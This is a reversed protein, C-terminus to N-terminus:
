YGINTVIQGQNSNAGFGTIAAKSNLTFYMYCARRVFYSLMSLLEDVGREQEEQFISPSVHRLAQLVCAKVRLQRKLSMILANTKRLIEDTSLSGSGVDEAIREFEM